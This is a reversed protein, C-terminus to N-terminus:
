KIECRIGEFISETSRNPLKETASTMTKERWKEISKMWKRNPDKGKTQRECIIRIYAIESSNELQCANVSKKCLSVFLINLMQQLIVNSLLRAEIWLSFLRRATLMFSLLLLHTNTHQHPSNSTIFVALPANANVSCGDIKSVNSILLFVKVANQVISIFHFKLKLTSNSSILEM